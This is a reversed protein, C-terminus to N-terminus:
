APTLYSALHADLAALGAADAGLVAAPRAGAVRRGRAAGLVAAALVIGLLVGAVGEVLLYQVVAGAQHAQPTAAVQASSANLALNSPWAALGAV